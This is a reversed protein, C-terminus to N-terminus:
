LGPIRYIQLLSPAEPESPPKEAAAALIPATDFTTTTLQEIATAQAVFLVPSIPAPLRVSQVWAHLLLPNMDATVPRGVFARKAPPAMATDNSWRVAIWGLMFIVVAAALAASRAWSELRKGGTPPGCAARSVRPGVARLVREHLVDSVPVDDPAALLELLAGHRERCAACGNLHSAVEGALDGPLERDLYADILTEAHRCDM